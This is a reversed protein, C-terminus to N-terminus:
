SKPGYCARLFTIGFMTLTIAVRNAASISSSSFSGFKLLDDPVDCLGLRSLNQLYIMLHSMGIKVNVTSDSEASRIITTELEKWEFRLKDETYGQYMADLIRAEDPTLEALINPYSVHISNGAAASALLGAWKSALGEDEELSSNNLIPILINPPVAKPNIGSDELLKTTKKAISIARRLRWYNMQDTIIQGATEAGPRLLPNILNALEKTMAEAAKGLGLMDDAM